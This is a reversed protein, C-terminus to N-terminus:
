AFIIRLLCITGGLLANPLFQYRFCAFLLLCVCICKQGHVTFCKSAQFKDKYKLLTFLGKGTGIELESFLEFCDPAMATEFRENPPFFRWTNLVRVFASLDLLLVFMGCLRSHLGIPLNSRPMM